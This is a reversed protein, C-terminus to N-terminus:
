YYVFERVDYRTVAPGGAEKAKLAARMAREQEALEKRTLPTVALRRAWHCYSSDEDAVLESFFVTDKNDLPLEALLAASEEAHLAALRRGGVGLLFILGVAVGGEKAAKVTATVAQRRVPKNLVELVAASGSEVGIYVRSLGKRGLAAFDAGTLTDAGFADMFAYIPWRPRIEDSQLHAAAGPAPFHKALLSMAELLIHRPVNLAGADGLFIAQRREIAAGLMKRVQRIHEAFAAPSKVVYKQGRYFTCFSCRNYRCGTTLQLVLAGYQDPPLIGVPAYIRHFAATRKKMAASGASVVRERVSRWDEPVDVLVLLEAARAYFLAALEMGAQCNLKERGAVKGPASIKKVLASGDLGWRVMQKKWAARVLCAERDFSFSAFADTEVTFLTNSIRIYPKKQENNRASNM